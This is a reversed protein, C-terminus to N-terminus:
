DNLFNMVLDIIVEKQVIAFKAVTPIDKLKENKDKM